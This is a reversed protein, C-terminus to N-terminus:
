RRPTITIVPGDPASRGTARGGRPVGPRPVGGPPTGAGPAGAGAAVRDLEALSAALRARAEQVFQWASSALLALGGVITAAAAVATLASSLDLASSGAVRTFASAPAGSGSSDVLFFGLALQAAWTLSLLGADPWSVARSRRVSRRATVAGAALAQGALLLPVLVVQGLVQLGLPAGFFARGLLVWLPLVLVAPWLLRYLVRRLVM